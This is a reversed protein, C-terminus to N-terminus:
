SDTIHYWPINLYGKKLIVHVSDGKNVRDYVGSPVNDEEGTDKNGWASLTLQYMIIMKDNKINKDTVVAKKFVPASTDYYCNVATVMGFAISVSFLFIMFLGDYKHTGSTENRTILHVLMFLLAAVCGVIIWLKGYDYISYFLGAKLALGFGCLSVPLGILPHAGNENGYFKVIGKFHDRVLFCCVPIALTFLMLWTSIELFYITAIDLIIAVGGLGWVIRSATKLRATRQEMTIGARHDFAINTVEEILKMRDLDAFNNELWNLLNRHEAFYNVGQVAIKKKQKNNSNIYLFKGHQTSDMRYGEIESFLLRRTIFGGCYTIGKGDILLYTNYMGILCYAGLFFLLLGLLVLFLAKDSQFACCITAIGGVALLTGFFYVFFKWGKKFEYRKEM